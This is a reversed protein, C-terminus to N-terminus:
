KKKEAQVLWITVQAPVSLGNRAAIKEIRQWVRHRLKVATYEGPQKDKARSMKQNVGHFM